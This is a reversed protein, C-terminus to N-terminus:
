SREIVWALGTNVIGRDTRDRGASLRVHLDAEALAADDHGVAADGAGVNVAQHGFRACVDRLHYDSNYLPQACDRAGPRSWSV